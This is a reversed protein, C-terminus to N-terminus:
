LIDTVNKASTMLSNKTGYSYYSQFEWRSRFHVISADSFDKRLLKKKLNDFFIGPTSHNFTTERIFSPAEPKRLSIENINRKQINLALDLRM